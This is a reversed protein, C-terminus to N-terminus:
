FTFHGALAVRDNAVPQGEREQVHGFVLQLRLDHASQFWPQGAYLGLGGEWIRQGQSPDTPGSLPVTATIPAFADMDEFRALLALHDGLKPIFYGAQIYASRATFDAISPDQWDNFQHLWEAQLTLGRWHGMLEANHGLTGLEQGEPGLVNLHAAYGLSFTADMASPLLESDAGPGGVPSVSIRGVWLMKRNVNGLRNAGEGNFSALAWELRHEPLFGFLMAGMERGPELRQLAAREPFLTQRDSVLWTRSVPAKFQGARLQLWPRLWLDLFADALLAEPVLETSMKPHIGWGRGYAVDGWRDAQPAGGRLTTLTADIELRARAVQFGVEGTAGAVPDEPIRLARPQVFGGVDVAVQDFGAEPRADLLELAPAPRHLALLALTPGLVLVRRPRRARPGM